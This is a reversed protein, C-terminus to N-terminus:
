VTRETLLSQAQELLLKGEVLQVFLKVVERRQVQCLCLPNNCFPQEFSHVYYVPISPTPPAVTDTRQPAPSPHLSVGFLHEHM